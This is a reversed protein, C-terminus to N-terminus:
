HLLITATFFALACTVDFTKCSNYFEKEIVIVGLALELGETVFKTVIYKNSKELDTNIAM